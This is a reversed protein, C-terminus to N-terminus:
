FLPDLIASRFKSFNEMEIFIHIYLNEPISIVFRDDSEFKILHIRVKANSINLGCNQIEFIQCCIRAWFFRLTSFRMSILASYLNTGCLPYSVHFERTFSRIMCSDALRSSCAVIQISFAYLSFRRRKNVEMRSVRVLLFFFIYIYIDIYM